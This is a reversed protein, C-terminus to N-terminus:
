AVGDKSEHEIGPGENANSDVVLRPENPEEAAPSIPFKGIAVTM